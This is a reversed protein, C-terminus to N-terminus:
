IVKKQISLIIKFLHAERKLTARFNITKTCVVCPESNTYLGACISSHNNGRSGTSTERSTGLVLLMVDFEQYVHLGITVILTCKKSDWPRLQTDTEAM